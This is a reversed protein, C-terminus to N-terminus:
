AHTLLGADKNEITLAGGVGVGVPPYHCTLMRSGPLPGQYPRTQFARVIRRELGISRDFGEGPDPL